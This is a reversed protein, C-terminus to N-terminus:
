VFPIDVRNEHLIVVIIMDDVIIVLRFIFGTSMDLLVYFFLSVVSRPDVHINVLFPFMCSCVLIMSCMIPAFIPINYGNEIPIVGKDSPLNETKIVRNIVFGLRGNDIALEDSKEVVFIGVWSQSTDSDLRINELFPLEPLGLSEVGGM